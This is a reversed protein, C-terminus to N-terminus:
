GVHRAEVEQPAAAFDGNDWWRVRSPVIWILLRMYYWDFFWRTLANAGYANSAPQRVALISWLQDLEPTSTEVQDPATADGQILVAPPAHLGSATPDSFLLAVRGDRRVNFAKNPLSISTTVLLRNQAPLIVPSTPVTIPTGDKALTSFECTRYAYLAGLVHPPM